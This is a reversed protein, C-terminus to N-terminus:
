FRVFVHGGDWDAPLTFERKYLGTQAPVVGYTPASFGQMEWCGPVTIRHWSSVDFGKTHFVTDAAGPMGELVVAAEDFREPLVAKGLLLRFRWEGDLTMMRDSDMLPTIRAPGATGPLCPLVLLLFYLLIAPRMNMCVFKTM